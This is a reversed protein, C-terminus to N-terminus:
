TSRPETDTGTTITAIAPPSTTTGPAVGEPLLALVDAPLKEVQDIWGTSWRAFHPYNGLLGRRRALPALARFLVRQVFQPPTALRHVEDFERAILAGQLLGPRGRADTRGASALGFMNRTMEEFRAGPDIEVLVWATDAGSNWWAHATGPPVQVRAGSFVTSQRGDTKLTLEGRLVTFTETLVPHVHEYAVTAGPRAYLDAVTMGNDTDAPRRLVAGEGTVPNALVEFSV